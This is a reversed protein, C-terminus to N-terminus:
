RGQVLAKSLEQELDSAPVRPLSIRTTKGRQGVGSVKIEIVGSASLEKVYKWLQTHGRKEANYEECIIAYANEAEGMSLHAMDSQKFRRAIGLLFLKQHLNLTPITDKRVTPYISSAAKRVHEPQVERVEQTDAYKGARWLLEIAYRADGGEM